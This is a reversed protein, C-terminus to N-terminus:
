NSKIIQTGVGKDTFIELLLSHKIRGDILHVKKTGVQLAKMASQIKPLMGGSIIRDDILGEVENIKITSILSKENEPDRLIGPVDSLFVLKRAKLEEAIRSAVMDANINYARGSRDTGIPTIVPVVNKKLLDDIAKTDVSIVTGVNGLDLKEGTKRDNMSLREAHLIGKGSLGHAKGGYRIIAAVLGPNVEGHLVEDVVSITKECTYRLGQIFTTKMGLEKMKTSIKNGGGHIIVPKMGVFEMFVIDRLTSEVCGPDEMASGGFKVVVTEGRFQQIYPLAEILVAAKAILDDM